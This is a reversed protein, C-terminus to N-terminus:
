QMSVDFHISYIQKSLQLPFFISQWLSSSFFVFQIRFSKSKLVVYRVVQKSRMYVQAIWAPYLPVKHNMSCQNYITSECKLHQISCWDPILVPSLFKMPLYKLQIRYSFTINKLLCNAPTRDIFLRNSISKRHTNKQVKYKRYKNLEDTTSVTSWYSRFDRALMM